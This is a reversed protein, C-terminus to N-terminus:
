VGCWQLIKVNVYLLLFKTIHGHLNEVHNHLNMKKNGHACKSRMAKGFM